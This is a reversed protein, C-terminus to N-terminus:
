APKRDASEYSILRVGRSGGSRGFMRDAGRLTGNLIGPASCRKSRRSCMPIVIEDALSYYAQKAQRRTTVLEAGWSPLSSALCALWGIGTATDIETVSKEGELLLSLIMLRQAQRTACSDAAIDAQARNGSRRM